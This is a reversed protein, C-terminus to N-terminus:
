PLFQARHCVLLPLWGRGHAVLTHLCARGELPTSDVLLILAVHLLICSFLVLLEPISAGPWAACPSSLCEESNSLM